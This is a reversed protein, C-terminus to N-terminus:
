QFLGETALREIRAEDYGAFDRLVQRNDRVFQPACREIIPPTDSLRFRSQEVTVEGMLPHPLGVLHGIAAIQPDRCFDASDAVIAAPIGRAQLEAEITEPSHRAAWGAVIAELADERAKRGALTAFGPDDVGILAALKAWEADDRVAIAVWRDDGACAFVGHPAFGPDRNGDPDAAEGTLSTLAIEPALYHIAAEAQALDIYCGQGTAARRRLAALLAVIAFKPGVYDTYPGFPGTPAVGPRGAIHQFGSLASGINGFGAIASYPGSQGMLSTSVMIMDPRQASLTAYDLAWGRMRGPAFSEIVVDAWGALDRAVEVGEPRGLDLTLGLKGANANEFLVSQQVDRVGNPFPGMVRAADLRSSSEVRVVTAGFDALARGIMPGAIVWSFDLVKLGALPRLVGRGEPSLSPGAAFRHSPSPVSSGQHEAQPLHPVSPSQGRAGEGEIGRGWPSLSATTWERLVEDGHEDLGPARGVPRQLDECLAFLAPVEIPGAASDITEYVGRARHHQSTLLDATTLIPAITIRRALGEELIEQKTRTALFAGVAERVLEEDEEDIEGAEILKPIERWDCAAAPGPAPCGAERMWALLSNTSWGAPGMALHMEIYGDAVPWKSRRTRAGSGSLDLRRKGKKKKKAKLPIASVSFNSDKVTDALVASLTAQAVGVQASIDVHQGLGTRERAALAVLAGGVADTAAHLWSQPRGLRLPINDADRNGFLAGGAAWITLDTAAHGAKPGVGGFASMTVQVARPNITRLWPWGLGHRELQGGPGTDIVVDAAAALRALRDRGEGTALDLLISRKGAGFVEWHLSVGDHFPGQRRASSGGPPEVAIVDAGLRAFIMGALAGRDDSLDLIRCDALWGGTM